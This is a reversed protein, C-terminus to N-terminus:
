QYQELFQMLGDVESDELAPFNAIRFTTDRLDGYGKGLLYGQQWAQKQVDEIAEPEGEMTIVTPSRVVPNKIHFDFASKSELLSEWKHNRNHTQRDIEKISPRQELVRKLCYINLINPTYHTQNKSHNDLIFALSNYHHNEAYSLARGIANPSLIMVGLGAPLGFCKQVSAYWIDAYSFPLHVGGMSSTADVAVLCQPYANKFSKIIDPHVTTGNATENHTIAILETEKSISAKTTNLVMEKNFAFPEAENILHQTYQHWKAGFAGNYFHVSKTQLLSQAIIEWCETASSTFVVRYNEPLDMKEHFLSKLSQMLEAFTDSRHNIGLIGQDYAERVYEPIQSYVRSPGPYFSVM